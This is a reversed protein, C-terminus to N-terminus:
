HSVMLDKLNLRVLLKVYDKVKVVLGGAVSIPAIDFAQMTSELQGHMYNNDYTLGFTVPFEKDGIALQGSIAKTEKALIAQLEFPSLPKSTFTMAKRKDGKLMIIVESDRDPEGSSFKDIPIDVVIQVASTDGKLTTKIDYNYGYVETNKVLFQRKKAMWAVGSKDAQWKAEAGESAQAASSFTLAISFLLAFSILATKMKM